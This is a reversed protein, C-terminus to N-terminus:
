DKSFSWREQYLGALLSLVTLIVSGASVGDTSIMSGVLFVVIVAFMIRFGTALTLVLENEDKKQLVLSLKFM